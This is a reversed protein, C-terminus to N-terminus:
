IYHLLHYFVVTLHIASTKPAGNWTGQCESNWANLLRTVARVQYDGVSSKIVLLKNSLQSSISPLHIDLSYRENMSLRPFSNCCSGKRM